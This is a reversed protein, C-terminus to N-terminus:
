VESAWRTLKAKARSKFLRFQTETLQMDACIERFPQGDLYFRTLLESDRSHLQKLLRGMLDRKERHLAESEPTGKAPLGGLADGLDVLRRRRKIMQVIRAAILRRVVSHLYSRLAMEHRLEGNRITVVTVMLTEHAIDDAEESGLRSEALPRLRRLIYQYLEETAQPDGAAIAKVPLRVCLPQLVGAPELSSNRVPLPFLM